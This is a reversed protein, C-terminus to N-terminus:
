KQLYFDEDPVANGIKDGMEHEVLYQYYGKVMEFDNEYTEFGCKPIAIELLEKTYPGAYNNTSANIATQEVNTTIADYQEDISKLDDKIENYRDKKVFIGSQPYNDMGTIEKWYQKLPVISLSTDNLSSANPESTILCDISNDEIFLNQALTVNDSYSIKDTAINNEKLISEFVIGPTSSKGFSQITKDVLDKLDNIPTRSVLYLNDWVITRYLGYSKQGSSYRLAGLNIPACIIDKDENTFAATLPQPGAVFEVNEQHEVAYNVIAIAPAGKPAIISTNTNNNSNNNCGALLLISALTLIFQKKM